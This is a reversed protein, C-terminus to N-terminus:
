FRYFAKLEFGMFLDAERGLRHGIGPMYQEAFRYREKPMILSFRQSLEMTFNATFNLALRVAFEGGLFIDENERTVTADYFFFEEQKEFLYGGFVGLGILFKAPGMTGYPVVDVGQKTFFGQASYLKNNGPPRYSAYGLTGRYQLFDNIKRKYAMELTTSFRIKEDDTSSQSHLLLYTPKLLEIGIHNKQDYQGLSNLSAALLGAFVLFKIKVEM